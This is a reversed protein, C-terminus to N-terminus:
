EPQGTEPLHSWDIDLMKIPSCMSENRVHKTFCFRRENQSPINEKNAENNKKRGLKLPKNRVGQSIQSM